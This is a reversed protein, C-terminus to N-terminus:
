GVHAEFVICFCCGKVYGVIIFGKSCFVLKKKFYSVLVVQNRGEKIVEVTGRTVEKAVQDGVQVQRGQGGGEVVQM